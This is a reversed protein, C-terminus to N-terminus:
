YHGWVLICCCKSKGISIETILNWAQDNQHFGRKRFSWFLSKICSKWMEPQWIDLSGNRANPPQNTTSKQLGLSHSIQRWIQLWFFQVGKANWTNERPLMWLVKVTIWLGTKSLKPVSENAKSAKMMKYIFSLCNLHLTKMKTWYIRDLLNQFHMLELAEYCRLKTTNLCLSPLIKPWPPWEPVGTSCRMSPIDILCVSLRIYWRSRYIM